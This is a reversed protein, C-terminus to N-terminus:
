DGFMAWLVGKRRKRLRELYRPNYRKDLGPCIWNPREDVLAGVREVVTDAVADAVYFVPELVARPDDGAARPASALRALDTGPYVRLGITAIMATPKLGDMRRVSEAMTAETEGPGGFILNHCQRIGAADLRRSFDMAQAATFGKRMGALTPDSLSDTGLEVADFGARKLLAPLEPLEGCPVFYGTLSLDLGRRIVEECVAAAHSEPRNFVADVVFVHRIGSAALAELEDAVAGPEAGRTRHGELLPYTCYVCTLSCGRQTQLNAVGGAGYYWDADFFARDVAVFPPPVRGARILRPPTRGQELAAILEPAAQEGEGAVGCDAGLYALFAEPLLSFGSGGLVLPARGRDKV